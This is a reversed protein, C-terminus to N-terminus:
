FSIAIGARFTCRALEVGGRVLGAEYDFKNNGLRIDAGVFLDFSECPSFVADFGCLGAFVWDSDDGSVTTFRTGNVLITADTDVSVRTAVAGFTGRLTLWDTAKWAPQLALRLEQTEVDGEAAVDITRSQRRTTTDTRSIASTTRTIAGDAFYLSPNYGGYPNYSGDQVGAGISGDDNRLDDLSGAYAFNPDTFVATETSSQSTSTLTTASTACGCRGAARIADESRYFTAGVGLGLSLRGDQWLDYGIEIDGGWLDAEHSSAVDDMVQQSSSSRSSSSSNGESGTSSSVTISGTAEDFVDASDFHWYWTEETPQTTDDMDIFGGEFEFRSTPTVPVNESTEDASTSSRHETSTSAGKAGRLRGAGTIVARSSISAKTKVGPAFRAGASIHWRSPKASEELRPEETEAAQAVLAFMVGAVAPLIRTATNM